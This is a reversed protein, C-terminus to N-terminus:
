YWRAKEKEKVGSKILPNIYINEHTPTIYATEGNAKAIKLLIELPLAIELRIKKRKL